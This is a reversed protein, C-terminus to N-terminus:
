KVKSLRPSDGNNVEQFVVDTKRNTWREKQRRGKVGDTTYNMNRGQKNLAVSTHDHNLNM